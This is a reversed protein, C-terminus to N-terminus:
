LPEMETTIVTVTKTRCKYINGKKLIIYTNNYPSKDWFTGNIDAVSTAVAVAGWSESKSWGGFDFEDTCRPIEVFYDKGLVSAIDRDCNLIKQIDKKALEMYVEKFKAIKSDTIDDYKTFSRSLLGEVWYKMSKDALTM